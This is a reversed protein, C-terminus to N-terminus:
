LEKHQVATADKTFLHASPKGNIGARILFALELIALM